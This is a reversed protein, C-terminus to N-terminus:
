ITETWYTSTWYLIQEITWNSLQSKTWYNKTCDVQQEITKQEVSKKNLLKTWNVYTWNCKNLRGVVLFIVTHLKLSQSPSLIFIHSEVHLCLKLTRARSPYSYELFNQAIHCFANQKMNM